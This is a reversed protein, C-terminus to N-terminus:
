VRVAVGMSEYRSCRRWRVRIEKAGSYGFSVLPHEVPQCHGFGQFRPPARPEAARRTKLRENGAIPNSRCLVCLPRALERM